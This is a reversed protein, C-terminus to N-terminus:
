GSSHIAGCNRCKIDYLYQAYEPYKPKLEFKNNLPEGSENKWQNNCGRNKCHIYIFEGNIWRTHIIGQNGRIIRDEVGSVELTHKVRFDDGKKGESHVKFRLSKSKPKDNM